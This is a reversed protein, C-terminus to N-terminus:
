KVVQMVELAVRGVERQVIRDIINVKESATLALWPSQNSEQARASSVTNSATISQRKLTKMTALDILAVNVYVFPAIFGRGSFGTRDNSTLMNGDLYFGLGELRGYGDTSDSFQLQAEARHKTILLLHTAQQAKLANKIADPITMTSNSETFLDRQKEFLVASRTNLVALEARPIVKRIAAGAANIASTDFIPDNIPLRERRNPDVLTGTQPRAIVIDLNDGILSLLGFVRTDTPTAPPTAPATAAPTQAIAVGTVCFGIALISRLASVIKKM